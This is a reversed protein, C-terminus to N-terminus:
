SARPDAPSTSATLFERSDRKWILILAILGCAWTLIAIGHNIYSKTGYDYKSVANSVITIVVFATSVAFLGFLVGAAIRVYSRGQRAHVAILCWLGIEMLLFAMDVLKFGRVPAGIYLDVLKLHLGFATLGAAALMVGFALTISSPRVSGQCFRERFMSHM